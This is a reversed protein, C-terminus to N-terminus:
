KHVRQVSHFRRDERVPAKSQNLVFFSNNSRDPATVPKESKIRTRNKTISIRFSRKRNDMIKRSSSKSRSGSKAEHPITSASTEGVWRIVTMPNSLLGADSGCFAKGRRKFFFHMTYRTESFNGESVLTCRVEVTEGLKIQKPVPMTSVEFPFVTQVDLERNCASLCFGAMLLVGMVWLADIWKRKM